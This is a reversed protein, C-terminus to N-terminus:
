GEALLKDFYEITPKLGEDLSVKPEWQLVKKAQEIDPQRQKPDDSPLPEYVIKSASGTLDIVKQALELITFESPNGINM